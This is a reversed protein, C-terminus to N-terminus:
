KKAKAQRRRYLALGLAGLGFTMLTAPEPIENLPAPSFNASYSSCITGPFKGECAPDTLNGILIQDIQFISLGVQTTFRGTYLTDDFGIMELFGEVVLTVSTNPVGNTPAAVTLLFPGLSCSDGVTNLGAAPCTAAGPDVIETLDFELNLGTTDYNVAPVYGVNPTFDHLFDDVNVPVGFPVGVLDLIDGFHFDTAAPTTLADLDLTSPEKTTFDGEATGAPIFDIMTATVNVGGTINFQGEIPDAYAPAAYAAMATVAFLASFIRKMHM